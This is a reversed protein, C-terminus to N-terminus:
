NENGEEKDLSEIWKQSAIGITEGEQVAMNMTIKILGGNKIDDIADDDLVIVMLKVKGKM